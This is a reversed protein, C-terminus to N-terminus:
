IRSIASAAIPAPGMRGSSTTANSYPSGSIVRIPTGCRSPIPILDEDLHCVLQHGFFNFTQRDHYRRAPEAHLAGSYFVTAADLDHSPIALHFINM